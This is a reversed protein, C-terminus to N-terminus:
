CSAGGKPQYPRLSHFPCDLIRCRKVEKPAYGMCDLCNANIAARLSKGSYAREFQGLRSPVLKQVMGLMRSRMKEKLVHEERAQKSNKSPPSLDKGGNNPEPEPFPGKSPKVDNM